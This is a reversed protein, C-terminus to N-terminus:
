IEGRLYKAVAEVKNNVQLAKYMKKIHTRVTEISVDLERAISGYSKGDVLKEIIETQRSSLIPSKSALEEGRVMYNLIERAIVPSMYSGGRKVIFIADVIEELSSKKSVYAVAGSCLAKVVTAEDEFATLMIIDLDPFKEKLLPLAELGSIGPLGIDLLLIDFKDGRKEYDHIFSEVSGFALTRGINNELSLYKEVNRRITTDDEIVIVNAQENLINAQSRM